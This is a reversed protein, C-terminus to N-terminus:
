RRGSVVLAEVVNTAVVQLGTAATRRREDDNDGFMAMVREVALMKTKSELDGVAFGREEGGRGEGAGDVHGDEADLVGGCSWEGLIGESAGDVHGDEADLVGGCSWEGLISAAGRPRFGLSCSSGKTRSSSM